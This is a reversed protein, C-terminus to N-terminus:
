RRDPQRTRGTKRLASPTVPQAQGCRSGWQRVLHCLSQRTMPLGSSTPFCYATGALDVGPLGAAHRLAKLGAVLRADLPHTRSAGHRVPVQVAQWHLDFQSWCLLRVDSVGLTTAYLMCVLMHDRQTRFAAM